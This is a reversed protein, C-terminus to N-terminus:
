YIVTEINTISKGTNEKLWNILKLIEETYNKENIGTFYKLETFSPVPSKTDEITIKLTIM